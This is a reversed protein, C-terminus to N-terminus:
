ANEIFHVKDVHYMVMLLVLKADLFQRFLIQTQQNNMYMNTQANNLLDIILNWSNYLYLVEERNMNRVLNGLFEELKDCITSPNNGQKEM